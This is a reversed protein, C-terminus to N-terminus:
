KKCDHTKVEPPFILALVVRRNESLLATYTYCASQCNMWEVPLRHLEIMKSLIPSPFCQDMTGILLVEAQWAALSQCLADNFDALCTVPWPHEIKDASLVLSKHYSATNIVVCGPTYSQIEYCGRSSELSLPM